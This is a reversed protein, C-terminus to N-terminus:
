LDGTSRQGGVQINEESSAEGGGWGEWLRKWRRGDPSWTGSCRLGWLGSSLGGGGGGRESVGYLGGLRRFCLGDGGGGGGGM